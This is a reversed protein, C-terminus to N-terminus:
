ERWDLANKATLIAWYLCVFPWPNVKMVQMVFVAAADILLLLILMQKVKRGRKMNRCEKM